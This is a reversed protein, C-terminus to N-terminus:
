LFLTICAAAHAPLTLNLYVQDKEMRWSIPEETTQSAALLADLQEKKPYAPSGMDIWAKKPNAHEEDIRKMGASALGKIGSLAITVKEAQIPAHPVHHNSLLITLQNGERTAFIDVTPSSQTREIALIQGRLESLMQFARYSPKPIGHITLLGFGGHFPLSSLGCEEFIDTFTWFSYSKLGIM